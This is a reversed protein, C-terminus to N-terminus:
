NKNQEPDKVQPLNQQNLKTRGEKRRKKRREKKIKGRRGEKEREVGKRETHKDTYRIKNKLNKKTPVELINLLFWIATPDLLESEERSNCSYKSSCFYAKFPPPPTGVQQVFGQNAVSLFNKPLQPLGSAPPQHSNRPAHSRPQTPPGLYPFGSAQSESFTM